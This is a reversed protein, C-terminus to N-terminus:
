NIDFGITFVHQITLKAWCNRLVWKQVKLVFTSLTVLYNHAPYIAFTVLSSVFRSSGLESLSDDDEGDNPNQFPQL